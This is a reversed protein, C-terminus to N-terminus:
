QAWMLVDDLPVCEWLREGHALNQQWAYVEDEHCAPSSAWSAGELWGREYADEASEVVAPRVLVQTQDQSLEGARYALSLFAMLVAVGLATSVIKQYTM